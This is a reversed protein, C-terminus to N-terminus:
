PTTLRLSQGPVITPSSLHNAKMLDYVAERPDKGTGLRGGITWLTDGAKVHYVVPARQHSQGASVAHSGIVVSVAAAAGAIWLRRMPTRM